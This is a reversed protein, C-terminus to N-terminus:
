VCKTKRLNKKSLNEQKEFNKNFLFFFINFNLILCMKKKSNNVTHSLWYSIKNEIFKNQNKQIKVIKM